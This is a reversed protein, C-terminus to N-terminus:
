ATVGEAKATTGTVLAFVQIESAAPKDNTGFDANADWLTINEGDHKCVFDEHKWEVRMIHVSSVGTPKTVTFTGDTASATVACVVVTGVAHKTGALIAGVDTKRASVETDLDTASAIDDTAVAITPKAVTGSLTVKVKDTASVTDVNTASITTGKVETKAAEIATHVQGGTTLTAADAAVAGTKASFQNDAVHVTVEDATYTQAAKARAEAAAIVDSAVKATVLAGNNAGDTGLDITVNNGEGTTAATTVIVETTVEHAGSENFVVQVVNSDDGTIGQLATDAVAKTAAIRAYVSGEADAEADAEGVSEELSTVRSNIGEEGDGISDEIAALRKEIGGSVTTVDGETTEVKDGKIYDDLASLTDASAIDDTEVEITHEAITGSLTVTVKPNTEADKGTASLEKADVDDDEIEIAKAIASKVNGATTLKSDETDAWTGGMDTFTAPTVTVSANLITEDTESKALTIAVGHTADSTVTGVGQIASDATSKVAALQTAITADKGESGDGFGTGIKDNIDAIEKTFTSTDIGVEGIKEWKSFSGGAFVAIYESFKNGDADGSEGVLYIVNEKQGSEPLAAVFEFGLKQTNLSSIASENASIRTVLDKTPDTEAGISAIYNEDIGMGKLITSKIVEVANSTILNEGFQNQPNYIRMIIHTHKYPVKPFPLVNSEGSVLM